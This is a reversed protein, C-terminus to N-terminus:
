GRPVGDDDLRRLVRWQGDQMQSSQDVLCAYRGSHDINNWSQAFHRAIGQDAM